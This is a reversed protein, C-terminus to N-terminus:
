AKISNRNRWSHGYVNLWRLDGIILIDTGINKLKINKINIADNMIPIGFGEVPTKAKHGGIIKPAIFFMVKDILKNQLMSFNLSGGGELLISDIEM